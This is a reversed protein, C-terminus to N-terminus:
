LYTPLSTALYMYSFLIVSSSYIFMFYCSSSTIKNLSVQIGSECHKYFEQVSINYKPKKYEYLVLNKLVYDNDLENNIFKDKIDLLLEKLSEYEHIGSFKKWSHEFWYHKNNKEFTLFTHTPCKDGDYYVIFFTKINWDNGKFYYRELEVQDWCVGIKNKIVQHPSQLIYNDSYSSDVISHKNNNKDVWGYKINKMLDMVEFENYYNWINLQGKAKIHNELPTINELIWAYRGEEYKGCIYEQYNNKKMSEVYEKTMYICDVLKCKCIIYSFNLPINDVLSMFETDEKWNKPISTASAHIYLEGRYDTKWSRTEVLKKNEKILTACPETLSLVKM